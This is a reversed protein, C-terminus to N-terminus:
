MLTKCCFVFRSSNTVAATIWAHFRPGRGLLPTAICQRLVREALILWYRYLPVRPVPQTQHKLNTNHQV